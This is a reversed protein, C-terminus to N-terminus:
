VRQDRTDFMVTDGDIVQYPINGMLLQKFYERNFDRSSEDTYGQMLMELLEERRDEDDENNRWAISLTAILHPANVIDTSELKVRAM